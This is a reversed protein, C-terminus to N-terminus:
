QGLSWWAIATNPLNGSSSTAKVAYLQNANLAVTTGSATGSASNPGIVCTLGSIASGTNDFVQFTVSQAGGTNTSLKCFFKAYTVTEGMLFEFQTESAAGDGTSNNGIWATPKNPFTGNSSDKIFTAGSTAGVATQVFATTAIQTTNTGAAATPATPTGALAPTTALVIAGSGSTGNSLNGASATAGGTVVGQTNFTILTATGGTGPVASAGGLNSLAGGATNAGTGGNAVPVVGTLSINPTAGGSSALPSSATVNTVTGANVDTTFALSRITSGDFLQLHANGNTLWMDGVVPASPITGSNPFNLSAYGQAGQLSAALTQKGGLFINAKNNYALNAADSLDSSGAQSGATVIGQSNYTIKTNTAGAISVATAKTAISASLLSLDTVLNNVQSELITPIDTASLGAGLTARGYQDVTLKTYTGAAIGSPALAITGTSTIPGGTLGAGTDIQTVTGNTTGPFTQGPAFTIIGTPAVTLKSSIPGSTPGFQFNLSGDALALLQASQSASSNDNADFRLANSPQSPGAASAPLNLLGNITGAGTVTLNGTISQNGTFNNGGSKDAKGALSNNITSVQGDTYANASVIAAADGAARLTAEATVANTTFTNASSLTSADGAIRANMENSLDTQLGTVQPEAIAGVSLTRNQTTGGNVITSGDGSVSLVGTNSIINGTIDIGTGATLASQTGPFAQGTAFTIKGDPAILLGSDQTPNGSTSTRLDLSGGSNILWEFLTPQNSADSGSLQLPQSPAAGSGSTTAPLTLAGNVIQNGSLTNGGTLNAKTNEAATARSIENNLNTTLTSEASTARNTEAIISAGLAADAAIRATAEAADAAQRASAEATEASTARTIENNLNTTLTGEAAMARTKEALVQADTYQNAATLTASNASNIDSMFALLESAANTARFNLHPDNALLWIDGVVPNSPQTNSSPINLSAYGATSPALNQSGGSFQNGGNLKASAASLNNINTQLTSEAGTARTTENAISASLIVVQVMRATAEASINSQLTAEAGQARTTEAALASASAAGLNTLAAGATIANTGGHTIDVLGTVNAANGSINGIVQSGNVNGNFPDDAYMLQHIATGDFFHLHKLDARFWFDGAVPSSPNLNSAAPAINLGATGNSQFIQKLGAGFTNTQDNYVLASPLQARPVHTTGDLTAVGNAAGKESLLIRNAVNINLNGLDTVLNTVQSEPISGPIQALNTNLVVDIEPAHSTTTSEKSELTVSITTANPKLALGFNSNPNNVWGQVLSTIDFQYFKSAVNICQVGSPCATGSAVLTMSPKNNYTVTGEQWTSTIQYLDFTGQGTVATAYVKLYAKSIQGSTVGAATLQTVDPRILATGSTAQQLVLSPSNGSNTTPNTSTIYSDDAVPLQAWTVATLCVLLLGLWLARRINTM